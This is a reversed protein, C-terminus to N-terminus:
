SDCPQHAACRRGLTCWFCACASERAGMLKFIPNFAMLCVGRFGYRAPLRPTPPPCSSQRASRLRSPHKAPWSLGEEPRQMM